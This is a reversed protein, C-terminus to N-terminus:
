PDYANPVLANSERPMAAEHTLQWSRPIGDFTQGFSFGGNQPLRQITRSSQYYYGCDRAMNADDFAPPTYALSAWETQPQAALMSATTNYNNITSPWANFFENEIPFRPFGDLTHMQDNPQSSMAQSGDYQIAMPPEPAQSCRPYQGLNM